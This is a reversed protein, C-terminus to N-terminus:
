KLAGQSDFKQAENLIIKEVKSIDNEKGKLIVDVISKNENHSYDYLYRIVVNNKNSYWVYKTQSMGFASCGLQEISEKKSIDKIFNDFNLSNYFGKSKGDYTIKAITKTTM